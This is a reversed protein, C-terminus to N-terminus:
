VNRRFTPKLLLGVADRVPFPSEEYDGGQYGWIKYLILIKPETASLCHTEQSTCFQTSINWFVANKMTVAM